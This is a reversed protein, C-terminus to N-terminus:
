SNQQTWTLTQSCSHHYSFFLFKEGVWNNVSHYLHFASHHFDYLTTECNTLPFSDECQFRQTVMYSLEYGMDQVLSVVPIVQSNTSYYILINPDHGSPM